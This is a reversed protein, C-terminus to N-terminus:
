YKGSSSSCPSESSTEPTSTIPEFLHQNQKFFPVKTVLEYYTPDTPDVPCKKGESLYKAATLLFERHQPITDLTDQLCLEWIAASGGGLALIQRDNPSFLMNRTGFSGGKFSHIVYPIIAHPNMIHIFIGSHEIDTFTHFTSVALLSGDHNLAAAVLPKPQGNAQPPLHIRKTYIPKKNLGQTAVILVHSAWSEGEACYPTAIFSSNGSFAANPQLTHELTYIPEETDLELLDARSNGVILLKTMDPSLCLQKCEHEPPTLAKRIEITNEVIDGIQICNEQPGTLRKIVVITADLSIAATRSQVLHQYPSMAPIKEKIQEELTSRVHLKNNAAVATFFRNDKSFAIDRIPYYLQGAIIEKLITGKSCDILQIVGVQTGLAVQSVAHNYKAATYTDNFRTFTFSANSTNRRIAGAIYALDASYIEACLDGKPVLDNIYSSRVDPMRAIHQFLLQRLTTDKNEMAHSCPIYLLVSALIFIHLQTIM